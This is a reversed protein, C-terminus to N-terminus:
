LFVRSLVVGLCIYFVMLFFEVKSYNLQKNLPLEKDLIDLEEEARKFYSIAEKWEKNPKLARGSNIYDKIRSERERIESLNFKRKLFIIYIFPLPDHIRERIEYYRTEVYQQMSEVAARRIHESASDLESIAEDEKQTYIARKVHTLADRFESMGIYNYQLSKTESYGVVATSYGYYEDSLVLKLREQVKDSLM